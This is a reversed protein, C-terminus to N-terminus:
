LVGKEHLIDKLMKLGEKRLQYVWGAQHSVGQAIAIERVSQNMCYYSFLVGRRLEPLQMMAEMIAYTHESTAIEFVLETAKDNTLTTGELKVQTLPMHRLKEMKYKLMERVEPLNIYKAKQFKDIYDKIFGHIRPSLFTSLQGKNPDFSNEKRDICGIMCILCEQKLDQLDERSMYLHLQYRKMCSGVISNVIQIGEFILLNRKNQKM